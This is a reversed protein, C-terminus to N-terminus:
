QEDSFAITACSLELILSGPAVISPCSNSGGGRILLRIILRVCVRKEALKIRIQTASVVSSSLFLDQKSFKNLRKDFMNLVKVNSFLSKTEISRCSTLNRFSLFKENAHLM